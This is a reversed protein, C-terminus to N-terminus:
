EEAGSRIGRSEEDEANDAEATRRSRKANWIAVRDGKLTAAVGPGIAWVRPGISSRGNPRIASKINM